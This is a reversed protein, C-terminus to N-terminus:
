LLVSHFWELLFRTKNKSYITTQIKRIAQTYISRDSTQAFDIANLYSLLTRILSQIFTM